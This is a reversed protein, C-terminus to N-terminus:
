FSFFSFLKHTGITTIVTIAYLLSGAFSWQNEEVKNDADWGRLKTVGAEQPKGYTYVITTYNRLIDDAVSMWADPRLVNMVVTLNWLLEVYDRRIREL